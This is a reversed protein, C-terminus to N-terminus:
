RRVCRVFPLSLRKKEERRAGNGRKRLGQWCKKWSRSSALSEPQQWLPSLSSLTRRVLRAGLLLVSANKTEKELMSQDNCCRRGDRGKKEERERLRSRLEREEERVWFFLPDVEGPLGQDDVLVEEAELPVDM